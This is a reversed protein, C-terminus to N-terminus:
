FPMPPRRPPAAAPATLPGIQLACNSTYATKSTVLFYAGNALASDSALQLTLSSIQYGNNGFTTEASVTLGSATVPLANLSTDAIVQTGNLWLNFSNNGSPSSTGAPAAAASLTFVAAADGKNIQQTAMKCKRGNQKWVCVPRKKGPSTGASPQSSRPWPWVILLLALVVFAMVGALSLTRPGETQKHETM